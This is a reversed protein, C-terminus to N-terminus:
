TTRLEATVTAYDSYQWAKMFQNLPVALGQGKQWRSDNIYAVNKTLDVGLVVVAHNAAPPGEDRFLEIGKLAEGLYTDVYANYVTNNHVQVIVGQGQALAATLGQLAQNGDTKLYTVYDANLGKMNLLTVLDQNFTGVGDYMPGTRVGSVTNQATYILDQGLATIDVPAGQGTLQAIVAAGAWLACTNYAGQYNWYQYNKAYDGYQVDTPAPPGIDVPKSVGFTRALDSSLDAFSDGIGDIQHVVLQAIGTVASQLAQGIQDPRPLSWQLTTTSPAPPPMSPSSALQATVLRYNTSSWANMFDDLSMTLGQGDARTPDNITVTRNVNDVGLVVVTKQNDGSEYDVPGSIPVIMVKTPDQLGTALDNFAKSWQDSGYPRMIIRVNKDQLLEYSDIWKVFQTSGPGLYIKQGAVVLSDTTQAQNTIGQLDPTTGTLQGYAMAVTALAASYFDGARVYYQITSAPNGYPLPATVVVQSIGFVNALDDRFKELNLQLGYLQNMVTLYVNAGFQQLGALVAGPTPLSWGTVTQAAVPTTPASTAASPASASTAAVANATTKTATSVAETVTKTTDETTKETTKSTPSTTPSTTETTQAPDAAPTTVATEESTTVPKETDKTATEFTGTTSQASVTTSVKGTPATSKTSTTSSEVTAADDTVATKM